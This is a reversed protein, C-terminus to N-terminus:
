RNNKKLDGIRLTPIIKKKFEAGSLFTHLGWGLWYLKETFIGVNQPFIASTTVNHSITNYEETTIVINMM